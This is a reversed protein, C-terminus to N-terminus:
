ILDYVICYKTSLLLMFLCVCLEIPLVSSSIKSSLGGCVVLLYESILLVKDLKDDGDIFFTNASIVLPIITTTTTTTRIAVIANWFMMLGGLPTHCSSVDDCLVRNHQSQM